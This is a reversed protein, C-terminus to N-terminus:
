TAGGGVGGTEFFIGRVGDVVVNTPTSTASGPVTFDGTVSGTNTWVNLAGLTHTSADLNILVSAQTKPLWIGMGAVFAYASTRRASRLVDLLSKRPAAQCPTTKKELKRSKM